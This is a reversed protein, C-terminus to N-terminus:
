VCVGCFGCFTGWDSAVDTCPSKLSEPWSFSCFQHCLLYLYLLLLGYCFLFALFCFSLPYLFFLSLLCVLCPLCCLVSTLFCLILLFSSVFVLNFGYLLFLQFFATPISSHKLPGCPTDCLSGGPRLLVGTSHWKTMNPLLKLLKTLM